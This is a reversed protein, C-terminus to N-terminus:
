TLTVLPAGCGRGAGKQEEQGTDGAEQLQPFYMRSARHERHQWGERPCAPQSLRCLVWLVAHQESACSEALKLDWSSSLLLTNVLALFSIVM